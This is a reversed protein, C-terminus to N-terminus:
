VLEALEMSTLGAAKPYGVTPKWSEDGVNVDVDDMTVEPNKMKM